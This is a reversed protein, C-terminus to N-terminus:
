ANKEQRERLKFRQIKGTATKPLEDVFEVWRPYKFHVLRERVFAKLENALEDSPEYGTKLVVYAKPKILEDADMQGVVASELVAPHEILAAEVEVPSVWQGSVKLMDDSRGAYWYYGDADQYYKDGTHIWHGNITDKTKEHKNWYHSAISDGRILLSGIEGPQVAHGHEDTLLAEYGPVLKGTSGPRIDNPRNSIFIHLVETSGIGDLIDVQFRDQWRRLIEGPLSEGASVCVRVSSFDFRKEAEPLALMNAYLTPSGYFITPRYQQVVKFMDEALPRGPYYVASAGVDFPFYLNNGLGYAFYLKAASFTIDSEQINLVSKAYCETCYVMDHHLHVCGKPFGTSGSSYLWFASDDKSTEAAELQPSAKEAWRAFDHLTASERQGAQELGVVVVQKLYKLDSQVSQVAPWVEASILLVKARSDNLMYVYDTPRLSTNMAVPVAGIKMGGFFGAAFEPSDLLLLAVRQEQEIGLDRLGNGVRNALEAVQAYTFTQGQYFVAPKAGRGEQLLNRDLFASAANFQEPVVIQAIM